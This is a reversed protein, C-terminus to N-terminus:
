RAARCPRWRAPGARSATTVGWVLFYRVIRILAGRRYQRVASMEAKVIYKAHVEDTGPAPPQWSPHLDDAGAAQGPVYCTCWLHDSPWSLEQATPRRLDAGRQRPGTPQAFKLCGRKRDAARTPASAPVVTLTVREEPRRAAGPRAHGRSPTNNREAASPMHARWTRAHISPAPTLATVTPPLCGAALSTETPRIRRSSTQRRTAREDADPGLM